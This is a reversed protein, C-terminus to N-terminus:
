EPPNNRIDDLPKVWSLPNSTTQELAM